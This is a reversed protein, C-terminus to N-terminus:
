CLCRQVADSKVMYVYGLIRPLSERTFGTHNTKAIVINAETDKLETIMKRVELTLVPIYREMKCLVATQKM